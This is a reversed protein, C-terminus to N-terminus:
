PIWAGIKKLEYQTVVRSSLPSDDRVGPKRRTRIPGVLAPGSSEPTDQTGREYATRCPPERPEPTTKKHKASM